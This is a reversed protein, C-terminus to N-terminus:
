RHPLPGRLESGSDATLTADISRDQRGTTPLWGLQVAFVYKLMFALFFVPITIGLLSGAVSLHDFLKGHNRAAWYGLPIGVGVAFILALVSLELTAPFRNLFEELVGRRTEISNGFDGQLLKGLWTIYQEPLSRNFGYAENIREIAEPTAREGLLAAAPGGPLARVWFFLLVTLGFLTPLLLLLRRGITRLM